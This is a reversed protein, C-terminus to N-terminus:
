EGTQEPGSKKRTMDAFVFVATVYQIIVYFAVTRRM